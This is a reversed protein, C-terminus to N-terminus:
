NMSSKRGDERKTCLIEGHLMAFWGDEDEVWERWVERMMEFFEETAYGKEVAIKSLPSRVSREASNGKFYEREERTQFCWSGTSCKVDEPEFGAKRAWVHIRAGPHPNTGRERAVKYYIEHWKAMEHSEPYCHLGASERVAVLGGTKCVRRMERLGHIPDTIHQVVQHAHVIDFFEDPFPLAHIDGEKFSINTIGQSAALARATQLPPSTPEVGTVHGAPVLAALGTTISGLGCGIDLIQSTPISTHSSTPPAIKPPVGPTPVSSPPTTSIELGHWIEPPGEQRQCARLSLM